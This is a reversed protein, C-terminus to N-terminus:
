PGGGAEERRLHSAVDGSAGTVLVTKM